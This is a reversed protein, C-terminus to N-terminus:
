SEDASRRLVAAPMGVGSESERQTREASREVHPRPAVKEVRVATVKYEPTGALKDRGTGIVRNLWAEPTHFTAFAQGPKVRLDVNAPLTAEGHRSVLRVRDGDAIGLRHADEPSLDLTDVPHLSLNPTRNTMTGANFIYLNRGTTLLFPFDEDVSEVSPRYEISQLMARDGLTFRITHLRATGPQSEDTCPWQMGAPELRSYALGRGDPWVARVEDWIQEASEFDFGHAHGLARALDCVIKWDPRSQGVAPIAQRVRNVRREANMFTGDKEYSSCAPLLVHAFERATENLFLDQVVVFGVKALAARTANTDPNTLLIDYGICYLAHLEGRGAADMMRVMTLGAEAPLKEGWVRETLERGKEITVYGALKSPEVGMHASGQVNNQGRLPNVGGGPVGVNGTILALNSLAMVAESGQDNETLGLGHCSWGPRRSAYLRAAHRIDEAEVGCIEAAREPTWARVFEAFAAYEAVRADVFARDVRHETVIVNAIANFLAVNTGPRLALHVDALEALETRRPDIVILKAGARARQKIRAGVVPHGETPNAGVVLLTEALELDDYSNTAAGTGFVAAMATATPAHCVRACCDVNNTGLALRAFKQTVYNEENTARASGLVAVAGPGHADLARRFGAATFALAEDWTATRWTGNDRIMPETVRDKAHVFGHAYRGKVCTHGKNVPSDLVPKVQILKGDLSGASLECGVGCYPCTTRTWTDPVGRETVSRDEIAGTPCTDSCAGCSVCGADLMTDALRPRIESKPGRLIKWWVDQGQVDRCIRICRDCQICRSMDVRMYPHTEDRYARADAGNAEHAVGYDVLMRHFPKDPHAAIAAAPYRHAHMALIMRRESELAPTHTTVRWGNELKTNCATVPQGKGEVRVVCMRCNGAPALRPDHCLTPVSLGARELAQLITTGPEVDYPQGNLSVRM